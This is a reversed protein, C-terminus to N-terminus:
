VDLHAIFYLFHLWSYRADFSIWQEPAQYWDMLVEKTLFVEQSLNQGHDLHHSMMRTMLLRTPNM